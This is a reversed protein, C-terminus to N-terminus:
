SLRVAVGTVRCALTANTHSGIYVAGPRCFASELSDPGTGPRRTCAARTGQNAHQPAGAYWRAGVTESSIMQWPVVM